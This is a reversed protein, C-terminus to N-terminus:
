RIARLFLLKANNRAVVMLPAGVARRLFGMDRVQGDIRLGSQEMEVSEFQGGGKGRLLLGYSADYRGSGPTVGSVNGAVILDTTVDDDVDDAVVAYIPAFQAEAPLPQLTFAGKGNNMAVSSAFTHAERVTAQKLEAAPLIDDIRSAGFSSYAVYRSKLQPMQRVLEDRGALPYSVRHKYFTVIQEVAGNGFFDHVYIRAPEARSARLYSNLGLNGLVLDKLGDSNLDVAEVTNWWGSTGAMGAEV